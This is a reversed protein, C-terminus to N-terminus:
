QSENQAIVKKRFVAILPIGEIKSEIWNLFFELYFIDERTKYPNPGDFIKYMKTRFKIFEDVSDSKSFFLPSNQLFSFFIREMEYIADEKRMHRLASRAESEMLNKDGLEYLALCKLLRTQLGLSKGKNSKLKEDILITLNKKSKKFDGLFFYAFSQALLSALEINLNYQGKFVVFGRLIESVGASVRESNGDHMALKLEINAQLFYMSARAQTDAYKHTDISLKKLEGFYYNIENFKKLTYLCLILNNLTNFRFSIMKRDQQDFHIKELMKRLVVEMLPYDDDVMCQLQWTNYFLILAAQSLANEEQEFIKLDKLSGGEILYRFGHSSWVTYCKLSLFLFENYNVAQRTISVIENHLAELESSIDTGYSRAIKLWVEIEYISILEPFKENKKAIAKTEELLVTAQETLGKDVLFRIRNIHKSLQINISTKYLVKEMSELILDRLYNKAMSFQSPSKFNLKKKISGEDYEAQKDIADFLKLYLKDGGYGATSIRFHRKETASLSKILQFLGSNSNM